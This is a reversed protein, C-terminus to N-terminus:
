KQCAKCALTSWVSNFCANTIFSWLGKLMSKIKFTSIWGSWRFVHPVPGTYQVWSRVNNYVIFKVLFKVSIAHFKLLNCESRWIEVCSYHYLLQMLNISVRKFSVTIAITEQESNIIKNHWLITIIQLYWSNVTFSPLSLIWSWFDPLICPTFFHHLSRYDCLTNFAKVQSM